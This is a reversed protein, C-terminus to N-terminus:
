ADVASSSRGKAVAGEFVEIVHSAFGSGAEAYLNFATEVGLENLEKVEDDFKATAVVIGQYDQRKLAHVAHVNSIHKPMAMVVLDLTGSICIRTWFDSDTADALLVNRGAKCHSAVAEPDRDFGIIGGPFRECLSDYAASGVRGMGFIAIREDKTEIPLDDPHTGRTEFKKLFSGYADYLAEANRNLPAAILFSASLAIAMSVMWTDPVWGSGVSIAMVILGFESYCSLAMASIFATRARLHFRTLLLFFAVSKLPLLLILLLAWIAGQMTISSQLGIQLFFGVLFLDTISLISKNLEKAKPHYGVLIGIYLAGLDAKLGVVEFISAGLVLALFLGCLMILEGHGSRRILQGLLPRGALLVALVAISWISPIKGTSATLFLVALIDQMILIGIATRGHMAGLDGSEELTKVAFVTSSFSFAFALLLAVTWDLGSETGWLFGLGLLVLSFVTVTFLTHLTTGAWIEPQALTRIRLKLGISFLLLTVGLDSAMELLDGGEQGMAKLIFGAALFGVMPPLKIQQAILGGLFAISIFIADM